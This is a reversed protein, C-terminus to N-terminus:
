VVSFTIKLSHLNYGAELPVLPLEFPGGGVPKLLNTLIATPQTSHWLAQPSDNRECLLLKLWKYCEYSLEGSWNFILWILM